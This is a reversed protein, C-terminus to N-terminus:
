HGAVALAASETDCFLSDVLSPGPAAVKLLPAFEKFQEDVTGFFDVLTPANRGALKGYLGQFAERDRWHEDCVSPLLASLVIASHAMDIPGSGVLTAEAVHSEIWSAFRDPLGWRRALRGGAEAHTWGFQERELQSLRYRGQQRVELLNRYTEPLAKALLPIAMDQLLAAAFLDESEAWRM